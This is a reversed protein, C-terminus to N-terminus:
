KRKRREKAGAKRRKDKGTIKRKKKKGCKNNEDIAKTVKKSLAKQRVREQKRLSEIRRQKREAETEFGHKRLMALRQEIAARPNMGLLALRSEDKDHEQVPIIAESTAAGVTTTVECDGFPDDEDEIAAFGVKLADGDIAENVQDLIPMKERRREEDSSDSGGDSDSDSESDSEGNKIAMPRNKVEDWTGGRALCLAKRQKNREVEQIALLKVARADAWQVEKWKQKVEERHERKLTINEERQKELLERFAKERREKKRKRFGTLYRQRAAVDFVLEPGERGRRRKHPAM